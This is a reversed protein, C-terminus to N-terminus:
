RKYKTKNLLENQKSFMIQEDEPNLHDYGLLHLIGHCLLFAFERNVGHGYENAQEYVKEICIFIDGLYEEDDDPFSIVDTPMDKNRYQKNIEHINEINVLICSLSKNIAMENIFLVEIDTIIDQFAFEVEGYNNYINIEM